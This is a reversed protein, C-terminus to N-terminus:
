AKATWQEGGKGKGKDREEIKSIVNKRINEYCSQCVDLDLFKKDVEVPGTQSKGTDVGVKDFKVSYYIFKDTFVTNCLDCCIGVCKKNSNVHAVM